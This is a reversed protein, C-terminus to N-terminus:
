ASAKPKMLAVERARRIENERAALERDKDMAAEPVSM